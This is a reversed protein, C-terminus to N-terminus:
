DCQKYFCITSSRVGHLIPLWFDFVFERCFTSSGNLFRFPICSAWEFYAVLLFFANTRDKMTVSPPLAFHLFKPARGLWHAESHLVTRMSENEDAQCEKAVLLKKFMSTTRHKMFVSPPLAFLASQPVRGLGYSESHSVARIPSHSESCSVKRM